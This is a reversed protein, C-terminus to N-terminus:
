FPKASMWFCIFCNWCSSFTFFRTHFRIFGCLVLCSKKWKKATAKTGHKGQTKNKQKTKNKNKVFWRIETRLVEFTRKMKNENKRECLNIEEKNVTKETFIFSVFVNWQIAYKRYKINVEIFFFVFLITFISFSYLLDRIYKSIAVFRTSM